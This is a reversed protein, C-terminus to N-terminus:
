FDKSIDNSNLALIKAPNGGVVVNDPIDKVVVSGAGIVVNNGISVPGVIVSNAFITVNDGIRPVGKHTKGITVGQFIKCNKGIVSKRQIVVTGFHVFRLGGGIHCGLPLQVSTKFCIHRYWLLVIPFFLKFLGKKNLMYTGIRFWFTIMFSFNFFSYLVVGGGM